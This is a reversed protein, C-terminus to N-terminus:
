FGRTLIHIVKDAVMYMVTLVLVVFACVGLVVGFLRNTEKHPPWTVKKMERVVEAFFAKPGRSMKPTPVSGASTKPSTDM